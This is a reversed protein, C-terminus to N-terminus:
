PQVQRIGVGDMLRPDWGPDPLPNEPRSVPPAPDGCQGRFEDYRDGWPWPPAEIRSASRYTSRPAPGGCRAPVPEEPVRVAVFAPPEDDAVGAQVMWFVGLSAALGAHIWFSVIWPSSKLLLWRSPTM